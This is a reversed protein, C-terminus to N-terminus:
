VGPPRGEFHAAHVAKAFARTSALNGPTLLGEDVWQGTRQEIELLLQSVALSDLGVEILSSDVTFDAGVALLEDRLIRFILDALAEQTM